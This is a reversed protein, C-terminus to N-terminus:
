FSGLAWSSWPTSVIRSTFQLELVVIGGGPKL